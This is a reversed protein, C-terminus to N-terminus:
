IIEKLDSEMMEGVLKKFSTKPKWNLERRAKSSDGRLEDVETPRFYVPDIKVYVKGNKKDNKFYGDYTENNAYSKGYGDRKNNVFMGSYYNCQAYYLLGKGNYMDNDWEGSYKPNVKCHKMDYSKGIGSRKDNKFEGDYILSDNDYLLGKGERLGSKFHGKFRAKGINTYIEGYGEYKNDVFNGNYYLNNNVYITGKGQISPGKFM